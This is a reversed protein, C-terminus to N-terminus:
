LYHLKHILESEQLIIILVLQLVRKQNILYKIRDYNENYKLLVLHGIGNDIKIFWHIKGFWIRLPKESM